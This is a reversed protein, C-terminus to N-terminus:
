LKKFDITENQSHFPYNKNVITRKKNKNKLTNFGGPPPDLSMKPVASLLGAAPVLDLWESWKPDPEPNPPSKLSKPTFVEDTSELSPAEVGDWVEVDLPDGLLESGLM